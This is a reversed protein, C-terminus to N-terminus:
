EEDESGYDFGVDIDYNVNEVKDRWGICNKTLWIYATVNSKDMKGAAINMGFNTFWAELARQGKKVAESFEKHNRMWEYKTDPHIDWETTIQASTKGQKSLEIYSEPHFDPDYKTPRGGLNRQKKPKEM